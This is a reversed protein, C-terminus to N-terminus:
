RPPASRSYVLGRALPELRQRSAGARYTTHATRLDWDKGYAERPM